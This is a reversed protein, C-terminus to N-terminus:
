YCIGVPEDSGNLFPTGQIHVCPLPHMFWLLACLIDSAFDTAVSYFQNTIHSYFTKSGSSSVNQTDGEEM